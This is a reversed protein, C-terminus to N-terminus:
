NYLMFKLLLNWIENGDSWRGKFDVHISTDEHMTYEGGKYGEYTAGLASKAAELMEGVTINEVPEFALKFYDGRWSHPNDLGIPLLKTKNTAELINIYEGLTM